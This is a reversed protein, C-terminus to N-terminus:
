LYYLEEFGPGAGEVANGLRFVGEFAFIAANISLGFRMIQRTLSGLIVNLPSNLPSGLITVTCNLETCIPLYEM